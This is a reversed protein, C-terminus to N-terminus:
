RQAQLHHPLGWVQSPENSVKEAESSLYSQFDMILMRLPLSWSRASSACTSRSPVGPCCTSVAASNSSSCLFSLRAPVILLVIVTTRTLVFRRVRITMGRVSKWFVSM